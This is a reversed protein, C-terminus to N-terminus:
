GPLVAVILHGHRWAGEPRDREALRGWQAPTWSVLRQRRGGLTFGTTIPEDIGRIARRADDDPPITRYIASMRDERSEFTDTKPYKDLSADLNLLRSAFLL